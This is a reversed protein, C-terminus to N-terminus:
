KPAFGQVYEVLQGIQEETLTKRFPVMATGAKGNMVVDRLKDPTATKWFDASTFNTPRPTLADGAVGDGKGEPGHCFACHSEYLQQAVSPGEAGVAPSVGFALTLIALAVRLRM